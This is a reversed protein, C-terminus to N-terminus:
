RYGTGPGSCPRPSCGPAEVPSDCHRAHTGSGTKRSACELRVSEEGREHACDIDPVAVVALRGDRVPVGQRGLDGDAHHQLGDGLVGEERRRVRDHEADLHVALEVLLVLEGGDQVLREAVPEDALAEVLHLGVGLDVLERARVVQAALEEELHM